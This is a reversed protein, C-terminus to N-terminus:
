QQQHPQNPTSHVETANPLFLEPESKKLMFCVREIFSRSLPAKGTALRSLYGLSFGTVQHLWERRYKKFLIYQKESM